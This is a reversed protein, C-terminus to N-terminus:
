LMRYFVICIYPFSVVANHIAILRIRTLELANTEEMSQHQTTVIDQESGLPGLEVPRAANLGLSGRVGAVM